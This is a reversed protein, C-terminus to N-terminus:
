FNKLAAAYCSAGAFLRLMPGVFKFLLPLNEPVTPCDKALLDFSTLSKEAVTM